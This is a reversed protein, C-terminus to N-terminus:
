TVDWQMADWWIDYITDYLTTDHLTTDYLTTCYARCWVDYALCWIMYLVDHTVHWQWVDHIMLYIMYSIIYMIYRINKYKMYINYM